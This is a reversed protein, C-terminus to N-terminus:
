QSVFRYDLSYIMLYESAIFLIVVYYIAEEFLWLSGNSGTCGDCTDCVDCCISVSLIGM